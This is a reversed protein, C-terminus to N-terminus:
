ATGANLRYGVGWVTQLLKPDSPDAEIKERIRGIHVAVTINGGMSELGWIMEYLDERSFVQGPHRMLFLLLEYEKSKLPIEAGNRFIQRADPKAAKKVVALGIGSGGAPNRRAADTRYELEFIKELQGEEVGPGNDSISISVASDSVGASIVAQGASYKRSNDLLNSISRSLLERDALVTGAPLESLRIDLGEADYSGM